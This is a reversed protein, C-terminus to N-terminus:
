WPIEHFMSNRMVLRDEENRIPPSNPDFSLSFNVYTKASISHTGESEGEKTYCRFTFGEKRLANFYIRELMHLGAQSMYYAFRETEHCLTISAAEKSLLAIRKKGGLKMIPVAAELLNRCGNVNLDLLDLLADLEGDEPNLAQTREGALVLLDLRGCEVKAKEVVQAMADPSLPDVSLVSLNPAGVPNPEASPLLLYVMDGEAAMERACEVALPSSLALIIVVQELM